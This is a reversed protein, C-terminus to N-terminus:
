SGVTIKTPPILLGVGCRACRYLGRHGRVLWSRGSVSDHHPCQPRFMSRVRTMWGRRNIVRTRTATIDLYAAAIERAVRLPHGAPESDAAVHIHRRALYGILDGSCEGALDLSAALDLVTPATRWGTVSYADLLFAASTPWVQHAVLPYGADIASATFAHWSDLLELYDRCDVPIGFLEPLDPRRPEGAPPHIPCRRLWTRIPDGPVHLTAAVTSPQTDLEPSVVHVTIIGPAKM